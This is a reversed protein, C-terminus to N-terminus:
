DEVENLSWALFVLGIVSYVQNIEELIKVTKGVKAMKEEEGVLYQVTDGENLVLSGVFLRQIMKVEEGERRLIEVYNNAIIQCTNM